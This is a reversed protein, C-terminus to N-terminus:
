NTQLATNLGKWSKRTPLPFNHKVDTVTYREYVWKVGIRNTWIILVKYVGVGNDHTYFPTKAMYYKKDGDIILNNNELLENYTPNKM